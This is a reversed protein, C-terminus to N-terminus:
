GGATPQSQLVATVGDAGDHFLSNAIYAAQTRNAAHIKKMIHRIHVKVTSERMQLDYAIVKNPKGLRLLNLVEAQRPTLGHCQQRQHARRDEVHPRKTALDVLASVPAFTGGAQVLELAALVVEPDLSTPIYGRVGCRLAELVRSVDEDDSFLILPANPLTARVLEISEDLRHASGPDGGVCNIVLSVPASIKALASKLGHPDSVSLVRAGEVNAEIFHRIFTRVLSRHDILVITRICKGPKAGDKPGAAGDLVATQSLM